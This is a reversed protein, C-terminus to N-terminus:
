GISINGEYKVTKLLKSWYKLLYLTMASLTRDTWEVINRDPLRASFGNRLPGAINKNQQRMCVLAEVLGDVATVYHVFQLSSDDTVRRYAREIMSNLWAGDKVLSAVEADNSGDRELPIYHEWPQLIGSYKGPYLILATRCLIAELVRPTITRHVVNGEYPEVIKTYLEEGSCDPHTRQYEQARNEISDDFDFVSAGGETALTCRGSMLLETWKTGYVREEEGMKCDVALGHREAIRHAHDGIAVKEASCRGLWVPLPRGRYVVDYRRESLPASRLRRMRDPVYGPLGSVVMVDRVNDQRYVRLANEPSLSSFVVSIGLESMRQTMRDIWRYEDQIIQIKPGSFKILVNAVRKPLYHRVLICISYHIIIADYDLSRMLLGLRNRIPNVITVEHRSHRRIADIHDLVVDAPHEDDALLLLRLPSGSKKSFAPPALTAVVEDVTRFKGLKMDAISSEGIDRVLTSAVTM